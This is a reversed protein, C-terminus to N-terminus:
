LALKLAFVGAEPHGAKEVRYVVGYSGRGCQNLVRWPGIDTGPPLSAPETM